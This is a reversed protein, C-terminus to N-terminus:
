EKKIIKLFEAFAPRTIFVGVTIGIATTLAFGKLMGAGAFWLPILSVIVTAYAAFIIFFARKIREKLSYSKSTESEDIMVIQDDVGTGLAAIIGAISPLDLNWKILAALGLTLILESILTIIVPIVIKPKKFRLYIILSVAVFVAIIALIISQMFEQGVTPSITDIKDIKIKFPLSGTILITQLKKMSNQADKVADAKSNGVGSGSITVTTVEKGKLGSSILLKDLLTDDLYLDITENLYGKGQSLNESLRATAQAQRQAAKPSLDISFSFRALYANGSLQAPEVFECSGDGQCVHKIDGAGGVFVTDNGIKAEFKGQQSILEQLEKPTAGAIEIILYQEDTFPNSADRIVVDKIGYTNLRQEIIAKFNVMEQSDLKKEPSVLARSGGQIDLGTKINWKSLKTVTIGPDKTTLFIYDGADTLIEIKVSPEIEKKIDSFSFSELSYNDISEVIMGVKLGAKESDGSVFSVTKNDISFDIQSTQYTILKNETQITLTKPTIKIKSIENYFEIISNIKVQNIEKLIEGRSIGANFASSNVNVDNIEVGGSFAKFNIMLALAIILAIVLVWIRWSTKAMNLKIRKKACAM